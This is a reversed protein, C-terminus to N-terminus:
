VWSRSCDPGCEGCMHGSRVGALRCDSYSNQLHQPTRSEIGNSPNEYKQEVEFTTLSPSCRCSPVSLNGPTLSGLISNTASSRTGPAMATSDLEFAFMMSPVVDGRVTCARQSASVGLTRDQRRRRCCEAVSRTEHRRAYFCCIRCARMPTCRHLRPTSRVRGGLRRRSHGASGILIRRALDHLRPTDSRLLGSKTRTMETSPHQMQRGPSM